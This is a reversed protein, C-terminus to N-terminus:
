RYAVPFHDAMHRQVELSAQTPTIPCRKVFFIRIVSVSPRTSDKGVCGQKVITM